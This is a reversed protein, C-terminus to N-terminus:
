IVWGSSARRLIQFDTRHFAKCSEEWSSSVRLLSTLSDGWFQDVIEQGVVLLIGFRDIKFDISQDNIERAMGQVMRILLSQHVLQEGVVIFRVLRQTGTLFILRKKCWFSSWFDRM